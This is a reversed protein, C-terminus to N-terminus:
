LQVKDSLILIPSVSHETAFETASRHFLNQFINRHKTTLVILQDESETVVKKIGDFTDNTYNVEINYNVNMFYKDMTKTALSVDFEENKDEVFHILRFDTGLKECLNSLYELYTADKDLDESLFSIRKLSSFRMNAPILFLPSHSKSIMDLSISGFIKRFAGGEGTTSMVMFANDEKSLEVLEMVPFGVKFIGEVMPTEVFEGIWDQNFSDVYEQLKNQRIKEVEDNVIAFQNIDTSTPYYVHTLKIVGHLKLALHHAFNYANLSAESFDTTVIIKPMNGYNKLRLIHQIAKRLSKNFNGNSKIEFLPGEDIRVSPVSSINEKVIVNVDTIDELTYAIKAYDLMDILKYRALQHSPSETGYITIKLKEM